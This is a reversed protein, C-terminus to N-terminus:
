TEASYKVKWWINQERLMGGCVPFSIQVNLLLASLELAIGLGWASEQKGRIQLSIVNRKKAM